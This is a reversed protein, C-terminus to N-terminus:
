YYVTPSYRILYEYNNGAYVKYIAKTRFNHGTDFVWCTEVFSSNYGYVTKSWTKVDSWVGSSNRQVSMTTDIRTTIGPLGCVSTGATARMLKISITQSTSSNYLGRPEVIIPKVVIPQMEEANASATLTGAFVMFMMIVSLVVSMAKKMFMCGRKIVEIVIVVIVEIKHCFFTFFIMITPIASFLVIGVIFVILNM